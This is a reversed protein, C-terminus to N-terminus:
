KKGKGKAAPAKKAPARKNGALKRVEYSRQKRNIMIKFRDLDTTQSRLAFREIKKAAPTAKWKNALDFAKSAKTVTSTRAGRLIPLRLKTLTLRKLPMMARPFNQGDVLVRNIDAIDVIVVCKGYDEGFNIYCVRGAEVFDRVGQFVCNASAM